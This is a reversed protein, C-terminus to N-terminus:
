SLSASENVQHCCCAVFRLHLSNIWMIFSHCLLFWVEMQWTNQFLGSGSELNCFDVNTRFKNSESLQSKLECTNNMHLVDFFIIEISKHALTWNTWAMTMCWDILSWVLLQLFQKNIIASDLLRDLTLSWVVPTFSPFIVVVAIRFTGCSAPFSQTSNSSKSGCIPSNPRYWIRSNRHM